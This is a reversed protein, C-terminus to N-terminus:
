SSLRQGLAARRTSLLAAYNWSLDKASTMYGTDRNIQEDLAGDDYAHYHVREVFSHAKQVIDQSPQGHAELLYGYQYLAEAMAFTCVPWPNGGNFNDGAYRDEPYRGIAIGPINTQNIPYLMAFTAILQQLTARVKPNDWALFGDNMNGHLLGLIVASDLNSTKYDIGAVRHITAKFYGHESDWFHQLTLEIQRAQYTYWDGAAHDNFHHALKAGQLLAKRDVMLTYFHTGKVEEWIDYSPEQWHHSVYELDKKIPSTAPLHSNYLKQLVLDERGEAILINSWSILSIARLAPGDNQPRGWPERFLQGDVYFKPEGLNGDAVSNQIYTSFDLYDFIRHRLQQKFDSAPETQYSEILSQMTIAADRVWHYYYNPETNTRRAALVAGPLGDPPSLNAFIKEHAFRAKANLWKIAPASEASLLTSSSCFAVVFLLLSCINKLKYYFM